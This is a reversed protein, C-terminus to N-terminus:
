YSEGGGGALTRQMFQNKDTLLISTLVLRGGGGWVCVCMCVRVCM